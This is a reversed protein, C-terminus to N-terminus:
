ALFHGTGKDLEILDSQLNREKQKKREKKEKKKFDFNVNL